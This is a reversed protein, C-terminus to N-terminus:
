LHERYDPILRHRTYLQPAAGIGNDGANVIIAHRRVLQPGVDLIDSHQPPYECRPEVVAGVAIQDGVCVHVGSKFHVLLGVILEIDCPLDAHHPPSLASVSPLPMFAVNPMKFCISTVANVSAAFSLCFSPIFM